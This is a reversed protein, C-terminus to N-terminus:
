SIVPGRIARLVALESGASWPPLPQPQCHRRSTPANALVFARTGLIAGRTLYKVRCRLVTSMPLVGGAAFVRRVEEPPIFGADERPVGGVGFLRERYGAQVADWDRGGFIMHLGRQASVSGAVAEAYGCFRYDKPDIEIRGRVCNLDVYTAGAELGEPGILSSHFRDCWLPGFRNHTRNFWISFRQKLLKMFHSVDGMLRLQQVRWAQAAPTDRKLESAIVALRAPSWRTSEPHLIRFRRLLESDTVPAAQPVRVVVHFHNSLITYTLVHVGCFDAIAWLQKRFIEKEDDGFLWVGNVTKSSCLYDSQGSTAPIKIRATRVGGLTRGGWWDALAAFVRIM